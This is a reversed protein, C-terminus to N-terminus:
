PAKVLRYILTFGHLLEVAEEIDHAGKPAPSFKFPRGDPM